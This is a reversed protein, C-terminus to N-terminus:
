GPPSVTNRVSASRRRTMQRSTRRCRCRRRRAPRSACAPRAPRRRRATWSGDAAGSPEMTPAGHLQQLPRPALALPAPDARGGGRAGAVRPQRPPPQVPLVARVRPLPLQVRQGVRAQDRLRPLRSHRRSPQLAREAGRLLRHLGAGCGEDHRGDDRAAPPFAGGVVQDVQIMECGLKVLPLCVEDNWWRITWPDGGCMCSCNGGRLWSPTRIYLQGDRNHIAHPRAYSDFRARDDWVFSGDPNKTYLLTWHYGSPWPFAHGGLTRMERVLKEFTADDPHVPYYDPTVWYGRKEWGWYAMVLPAAPFEKQWYDKMWARIDDPKELWDRGFRVMAPADKMWAPLDPRRALPTACWPQGLAWAKYIDAANHWDALSGDKGEFAATAVDYPQSDDQAFGIRRVAFVLADATREVSLHKAHGEADEAALYFGGRDDYLCAFQAVLNGPERGSVSWGVRNAGPNRLVGGKALGLVCADDLGTTGLQPALPIRPYRTETVSWGTRATTRIRWRVKGDGAPARVTCVVKEVAGDAFGYVLRVGDALREVTFSTADSASAYAMNTYCDTRCLSLGFLATRGNDPGLEQGRASVLRAVAGQAQEDLTVALTTSAVDVAVAKLGYLALLALSLCNKSTM